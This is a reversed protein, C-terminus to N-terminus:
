PEIEFKIILRGFQALGPISKHGTQSEDVEWSM